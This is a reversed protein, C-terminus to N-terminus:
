DPSRWRGLRWRRSRPRAPTPARTAVLLDAGPVRGERKVLPAHWRGDLTADVTFGAGTVMGKMLDWTYAMSFGVRDPFRTYTGEAVRVFDRGSWTGPHDPDVIAMFTVLLRGGPRLVRHSECLYREIAAQRMHVFVDHACVYDFRGDEYPFRVSEPTAPADPQYRDNRVELLDFRLAPRRSTYKRSLWGIPEPAIDFGVYSGRDFFDALQYALRGTGCGIELLDDDPRLGWELMLEFQRRGRRPEEDGVWLLTPDPEPLPEAV